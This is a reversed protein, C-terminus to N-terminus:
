TNLSGIYLLIHYMVRFSWGLMFTSSAQACPIVPAPTEPKTVLVIKKHQKSKECSVAFSCLLTSKEERHIVSIQLCILALKNVFFYGKLLTQHVSRVQWDGYQVVTHLFVM